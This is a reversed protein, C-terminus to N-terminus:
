PSSTVMTTTRTLGALGAEHALSQGGALAQATEFENLQDALAAHTFDPSGPIRRELTVDRDLVQRGVQGSIGIPDTSENAFGLAQRGNLVGTNGMDIFDRGCNGGGGVALREAVRLNM